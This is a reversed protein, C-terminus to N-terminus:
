RVHCDFCSDDRIRVHSVPHKNVTLNSSSRRRPREWCSGSLTSPNSGLMFLSDRSERKQVITRPRASTGSPPLRVLSPTLNSPPVRLLLSCSAAHYSWTAAGCPPDLCAELDNSYWRFRVFSALILANSDWLSTNHNVGPPIHQTSHKKAFILNSLGWLCFVSGHSSRKWRQIAERIRVKCM